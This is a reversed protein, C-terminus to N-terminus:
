SQRHRHLTARHATPPELEETVLGEYRKQAELVPERDQRAGMPAQPRATNAWELTATCYPARLRSHEGDAIILCYLTYPRSGNAPGGWPPLPPRRLAPFAM